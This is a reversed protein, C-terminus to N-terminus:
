GVLNEYAQQIQKFIIAAHPDPNIDPHYKKSLQRYTKKIEDQSATRDLGLLGLDRLRLEMNPQFYTPEEQKYQNNQEQHSSEKQKFQPMSFDYVFFERIKWILFGLIGLNVTLLYVTLWFAEQDGSTLLEMYWNFKTFIIYLGVFYILVAGIGFCVAAIKLLKWAITFLISFIVGTLAIGLVWDMVGTM